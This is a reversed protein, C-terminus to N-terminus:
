DLLHPLLSCYFNRWKKVSQLRRPVLFRTRRYVQFCVRVLVYNLSSMFGQQYITTTAVAFKELARASCNKNVKVWIESIKGSVHIIFAYKQWIKNEVTYKLATVRPESRLIYCPVFLWNDLKGLCIRSNTRWHLLNCKKHTHLQPLHMQLIIFQGLLQYYQSDVYRYLILARALTKRTFDIELVFRARHFHSAVLDLCNRAHM